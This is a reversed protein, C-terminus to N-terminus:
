HPIYIPKYITTPITHTICDCYGLDEDHLSFVEQNDYIIDLFRPQEKDLPAEGINLPFPLHKLEAQFNFDPSHNDSCHGFVPHSSMEEPEEPGCM